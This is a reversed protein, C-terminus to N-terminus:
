LNLKNIKTRLVFNNQITKRIRNFANKKEFEYLKDFASAETNSQEVLPHLIKLAELADRKTVVPPPESTGEDDYEVIANGAVNEVIDDDTPEGTVAVNDDVSAYQAFSPIEEANGISSVAAAWEASSPEATRPMADQQKNVDVYFISKKFCNSITSCAVNHWAKRAFRMAHLINRTQDENKELCNSIHAVVERRYGMKFCEIVGQYM